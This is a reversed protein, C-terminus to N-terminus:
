VLRIPSKDLRTFLTVQISWTSKPNGGIILLIPEPCQYGKSSSIYKMQRIDVNSAEPSGGPHYHWEGLYYHKERSWLMLILNQLGSVGRHFWNRGRRSDTPAGIVRAVIATSLKEDYVGILIGGTEFKGSDICQKLLYAVQASSISVTFHGDKDRFTLDREQRGNRV